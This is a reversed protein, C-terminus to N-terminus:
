PSYVVRLRKQGRCSPKCPVTPYDCFCSKVNTSTKSKSRSPTKNPVTIDSDKGVAVSGFGGVCLTMRWADAAHGTSKGMIQSGYEIVGKEVHRVHGSTVQDLGVSM